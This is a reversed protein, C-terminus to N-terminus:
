AMNLCAFDNTKGLALLKKCTDVKAYVDETHVTEAIIHLM